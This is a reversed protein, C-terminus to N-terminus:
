APRIGATHHRHAANLLAVAALTIIAAAVAAVFYPWLPTTSTTVPNTAPAQVPPQPVYPSAAPGDDVPMAIAATATYLLALFGGLVTAAALYITRM